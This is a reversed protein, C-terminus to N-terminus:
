SKDKDKGAAPNQQQALQEAVPGSEALQAAAQDPTLNGKVKYGAGFVLNTIDAPTSVNCENGQPDVLTVTKVQAM